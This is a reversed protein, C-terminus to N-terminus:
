PTTRGCRLRLSGYPVPWHRGQRWLVLLIAARTSYMTAKVPVSYRYYMGAVAFDLKALPAWHLHMIRCIVDHRRLLVVLLLSAGYRPALPVPHAKTVLGGGRLRITCTITDDRGLQAM